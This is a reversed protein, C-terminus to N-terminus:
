TADMWLERKESPSLERGRRAWWPIKFYTHDPVLPNDKKWWAIRYWGWWPDSWISTVEGSDLHAPFHRGARDVLRERDPDYELQRGRWDAILLTYGTAALLSAVTEFKASTRGAEIRDITSRPVGAHAALERQSLRRSRRAARLVPGLDM